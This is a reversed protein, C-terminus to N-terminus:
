SVLPINKARAATIGGSVMKADVGQLFIADAGANIGTQLAADYGTPDAVVIVQYKWGLLKAVAEIDESSKKCGEVAHTCSIEVVFKDKPAPAADTPGNWPAVALADAVVKEYASVDADQAIAATGIGAIALLAIAGLLSRMTSDSMQKEGFNGAAKGSKFSRHGARREHNM